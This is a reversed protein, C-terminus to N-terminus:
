PVAAGGRYRPLGASALTESRLTAPRAQAREWVDRRVFVGTAQGDEGGTGDGLADFSPGLRVYDRRFRESRDLEAAASWVSHTVVFTPRLEAFLYAHLRDPDAGLARAVTRDCLGALDHVRLASAWLTGGLDPALVSGGRVGLRDALRNLALGNEAQVTAFPVTPDQTFARTREAFHGGQVGVVLALAAAGLRPGVRRALPALAVGLAVHVGVIAPTAFRYEPMWDTPLIVYIALGAAATAYLATSVPDWGRTATRRLADALLAALALGGAAGLAQTLRQAEPSYGAALWAAGAAAVLGAWVLPRRAARPWRRCALAGLVLTAALGCVWVLAASPVAQGLATAGKAHATNPLVDRFYLWRFAFFGGTGASASAAYWLAPGRWAGGRAASAALCVAPVGVFLLGDPRTMVLASALAGALGAARGEGEAIRACTWALTLALLGYLANELGSMSWLVYPTALSLLTLVGIRLGPPVGRKRFVHWALGYTAAVCAGALLKPTWVLHFAGLRMTAALVLLWLTNSYGEVPPAGPQAVLGAGEAASRAYAFTIGADDILYTGFVSAHAAFVLVPLVVGFRDLGRM